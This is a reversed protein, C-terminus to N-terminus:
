ESWKTKLLHFLPEHADLNYSHLLTKRHVHVVLSETLDQSKESKLEKQHRADGEHLPSELPNLYGNKQVVSMM